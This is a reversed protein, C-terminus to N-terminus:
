VYLHNHNCFFFIVFSDFKPMLYGMLPQYWVFLGFWKRWINVHNLKNRSKLLYFVPIREKSKNFNPVCEQNELNWRKEKEKYLVWHFMKQVDNNLIKNKDTERVRKCVNVCVCFVSTMWPRVKDPTGPPKGGWNLRTPQKAGSARWYLCHRLSWANKSIGVRTEIRSHSEVISYYWM